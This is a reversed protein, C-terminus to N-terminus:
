IYLFDISAEELFVGAMELAKKMAASSPIKKDDLFADEIIKRKDMLETTRPNELARSIMEFSVLQLNKEITKNEIENDVITKM